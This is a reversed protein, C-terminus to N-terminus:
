AVSLGYVDRQPIFVGSVINIGARQMVCPRIEQFEMLPIMLPERVLCIRLFQGEVLALRFSMCSSISM